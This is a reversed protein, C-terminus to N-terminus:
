QATGFIKKYQAIWDGLFVAQAEKLTIKGKCLSHQEFVELRDKRSAGWSGLRTEPWLNRPDTPNGGSSLPVRHDEEVTKPDTGKPYGYKTMQALKLKDTYSAPPRVTATWGAKCVTQQINAQTVAPNIAGPTLTPDPRIPDAAYASICALMMLMAYVYRMPRM